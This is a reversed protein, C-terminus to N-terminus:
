DSLEARLRSTKIKECCSGRKSRSGYHIFKKQQFYITFVMQQQLIFWNLFLIVHEDPMLTIMLEEYFHGYIHDIVVESKTLLHKRGEEKSDKDYPEGRVMSDMNVIDNNAHGGFNNTPAFEELRHGVMHDIIYILCISEEMISLLTIM